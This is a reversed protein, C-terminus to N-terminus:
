MAYQFGELKLLMGNTKPMPYPKQNLKKNINRFDSLFRVLNPKPKPQAFSPAGWESDNEVELARLLFLREFVKKLMKKHLKLVPYPRSCIQNADEKLKSDLQYTKWTGLTGDFM